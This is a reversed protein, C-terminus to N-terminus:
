TGDLNERVTNLLQEPPVPKQLFNEGSRLELERGAIEGSYGSTFIIKLHPNDERLRRAMERLEDYVLPLLKSAAATDGRGAANLLMTVDRPSTGSSM